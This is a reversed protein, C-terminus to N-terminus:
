EHAFLFSLSLFRMVIEYILSRKAFRILLASLMFNFWVLQMCNVLFVLFVPFKESNPLIADTNNLKEMYKEESEFDTVKWSYKFSEEALKKNTVFYMMEYAVIACLVFYYVTWAAWQMFNSAGM